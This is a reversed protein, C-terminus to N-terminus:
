DIIKLSQPLQYNEPLFLIDYGEKYDKILRLRKGTVIEFARYRNNDLYNYLDVASSEFKDLQENIVEILVAPQQRQLLSQMGSLVEMEAGETDIKILDLKPLPNQEAWKDLSIKEVTETKGSFNEPLVMATMGFNDADALYITAKENRNGVAFPLVEVNSLNNLAINDSLQKRFLSVPEFSFVSGNVAKAAALVSFYGINAGVDLVVSDRRILDQWVISVEKEYYGYWFINKQIHDTANVNLRLGNFLKKQYPQEALNLKRLIPQVYKWGRHPFPLHRVYWNLFKHM